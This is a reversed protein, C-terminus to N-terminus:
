IVLEAERSLEVGRQYVAAIILLMLGIEWGPLSAETNLRVYHNLPEVLGPAHFDPILTRIAVYSLAQGLYIPGIIWLGLSRLRHANAMTFPTGPKVDQLLQWLLWSGVCFFVVWALSLYDNSAGLYLLALRKWPNPEQYRLLPTQPNAVVEFAAQGARWAPLPGREPRHPKGSYGDQMDAALDHLAPFLNPTTTNLALRVESNGTAVAVTKGLLLFTASSAGLICFIVFFRSLRLLSHFQLFAM